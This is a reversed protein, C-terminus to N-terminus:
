EGSTYFFAKVLHRPYPFSDLSTGTPIDQHYLWNERTFYVEGEFFDAEFSSASDAAPTSLVGKSLIVPDLWESGFRQAFWPSYRIRELETPIGSRVVNDNAAVRCYSREGNGESFVLLNRTKDFQIMYISDGTDFQTISTLALENWIAMQRHDLEIYFKEMNYRVRGPRGNAPLIIEDEKKRKLFAMDQQASDTVLIYTNGVAFHRPTISLPGRQTLAGSSLDLEYLLRSDPDSFWLTTERGDLDGVATLGYSEEWNLQLLSDGDLRDIHLEGLSDQSLFFATQTRIEYVEDNDFGKCAVFLLCILGLILKSPGSSM